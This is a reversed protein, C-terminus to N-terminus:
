LNPKRCDDDAAAQRAHESLAEPKPAPGGRRSGFVSSFRDAPVVDVTTAFRRRGLLALLPTRLLATKLHMIKSQTATYIFLHHELAPNQHDVKYYVRILWQGSLM